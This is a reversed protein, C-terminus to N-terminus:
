LQVHELKRDKLLIPNTKLIIIRGPALKRSLEMEEGYSTDSNFGGLDHFISARIFLFAGTLRQRRVAIANWLNHGFNEQERRILCSGADYRDSRIAALAASFLERTPQADADVFLLWDGTAIKAGANRAAAATQKEESVVKAGAMGAIAPTADTSNNDVVILESEIGGRATEVARLTKPLMTTENRAPIIISLKM